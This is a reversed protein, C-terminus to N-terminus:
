SAQSPVETVPLADLSYLIECWWDGTRQFVLLPAPRVQLSIIFLSSLCFSYTSKNSQRQKPTLFSIHGTFSTVQCVASNKKYRKPPSASVVGPLGLFTFIGTASSALTSPTTRLQHRVFMDQHNSPRADVMRMACAM